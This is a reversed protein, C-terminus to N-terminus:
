ECPRGAATRVPPCLAADVSLPVGEDFLEIWSDPVVPAAVQGYGLREAVERGVLAYAVGKADVFYPSGVQREDWGAALVYAGRGPDVTRDVEGEDLDADEVSAAGVPGTAVHVAPAEGAEPSLVACHEGLVPELTAEPWHAADYAPVVQPIQPEGDTVLERPEYDQPRESHEYVATAFETLRVPGDATLVLRIGGSEYSDGIRADDPLGDRGADPSPEGLGAIGFSAFDLAGGAPFLTLWQEPVQAAQRRIPLGITQLLLDNSEARPLAYAHARTQGGNGRPASEAIVYLRGRSQVLLGASDPVRVRPEASVDVQVGARDATCATWGTQLLLDAEPVTAPANLIGIDEGITYQDIEDQDVVSPDPEAGLILQASTINIVPRLVPDGSEDDGLVVYAAGRQKSVVLGGDTWDSPARPSLQSAIAAGAVLLVALALGGVVTRGPRAPEVERGGPAGSVFATVLRRRSFSHAEVLDKKTAM